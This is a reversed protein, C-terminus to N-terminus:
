EESTGDSDDDADAIREALGPDEEV